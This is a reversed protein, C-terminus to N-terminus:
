AGANTVVTEYERAQESNAELEPLLGAAALADCQAKLTQQLPVFQIGLENRIKENKLSLCPQVTSGDSCTQPLAASPYLARLIDVVELWTKTVGSCLYRNGGAIDSEAALIHAKAVDAVDVFGVSGPMVHELKGSLLNYLILSSQNLEDISGLTQKNEGLVMPPLISVCDFKGAITGPHGWAAREAVTKSWRYAHANTPEPFAGLADPESSVNWHSEDYHFNMPWPDRGGVNMVAAFSSTLVVRRVNSADRACADLVNRTGDKAPYVLQAWPDTIRGDMWFPSAVHFCATAETVAADFSGPVLLDCGSVISLSGKSNLAVLPALKSPNDTRVAAIVEYGATLLQEVLHLAIFGSAGTV